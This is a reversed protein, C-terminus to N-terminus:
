KNILVKKRYIYGNINLTVFYLGNTMNSLNIQCSPKNSITCYINNGMTNAVNIGYNTNYLGEVTINIIGQSPNPFVQVKKELNDISTIEIDTETGDDYSTVRNLYPSQIPYNVLTTAVNEVGSKKSETNGTKAKLKAGKIAKTGPKFVIKTGAVINVDASSNFVYTFNGNGGLTVSNTAKLKLPGSISQALVTRNLLRPRQLDKLDDNLYLMVQDGTTKSIRVHEENLTPQGFFDDFPVQARLTSNDRYDTWLYNINTADPKVGFASSTVMFTAWRTHIQTKYDPKDQNDAFQNFDYLASYWGGPANDYPIQNAFSYSAGEVAVMEDNAWFVEQNSDRFRNGRTSVKLNIINEPRSIGFINFIKKLAGFTYDPIAFTIDTLINGLKNAYFNKAEDYVTKPVSVLQYIRLTQVNENEYLKQTGGNTIAINRTIKPFGVNALINNYMYNSENCWDIYDGNVTSYHKILMQKAALTNLKELAESTVTHDKGTSMLLNDFYLLGLQLDVPIYAGQQPSDFSFWERTYHEHGLIEISDLAIRTILGGMSPGIVVNEETQNDRYLSSNIKEELFRRFWYSNKAIDGAGNLFNVIVIDYGDARLKSMLNARSTPYYQPFVVPDNYWPSPDGNIMEFIGRTDNSYTLVPDAIYSQNYDRKDGPDFGDCVIIPKRLKGSTNTPAFLFSAEIDCNHYNPVYDYGICAPPYPCLGSKESKKKSVCASSYRVCTYTYTIKSEPFYLTFSPSISASKKTSTNLDSPEPVLDTGSRLITFHSIYKLEKSTRRNVVTLRVKVEIYKTKTGFSIYQPEDWNFDTWGKGFNAEIGILENTDNTFYMNQYFVFPVENGHVRLNFPCALVSRRTAYISDGMNDIVLSTDTEEVIGAKVYKKKFKNFQYNLIAIPYTKEWRMKEYAYEYISDLNPFPVSNNAANQLQKLVRRFIAYDCTKVKSKGNFLGMDNKFKIRDILIGTPIQSSDIYRLYWGPNKKYNTNTIVSATDEDSYKEDEQAILSVTTLIFVLLLIFRRMRGGERELPIAPILGRNAKM